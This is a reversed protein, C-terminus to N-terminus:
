EQVKLAEALSVKHINWVHIAAAVVYTAIGIIFVQMLLEPRYNLPFNGAYDALLQHMIENVIVIIVPISLLESALVTFTIPHMYLMRIEKETYGFVKMYSIYRASQEIITKTLLFILLVSVPIAAWMLMSLVSGMSRNIQDGASAMQGPTTEAVLYLDDLLLPKNSAYGNFYDVPKDFIECWMTRSMYVNMDTQSGAIVDPSLMYTDGTYRNTFCYQEGRTLNCKQALGLGVVIKGGSVDFKWYDSNLDIGYVTVEESKGSIARPVDLTTVAFKESKEIAQVSNHYMNVPHGAAVYPDSELLSARMLLTLYRSKSLEDEPHEYKHLVNLASAADVQASTVDIELPEKLTYVHQAPVMKSMQASYEEMLPITCLCMLLLVNSFVIGLFLILFQSTNRVLIRMRFRRLFKWYDPFVLKSGRSRHRIEQRLFQLPTAKLSIAIGIFSVIMLLLVPLVTMFVFIEVSFLPMFNIIDYARYYSQTMNKAFGSYCIINGIGAALLGTLTPLVMYHAILERKRYGSALLTGIVASESVITAKTLVVFVFSAVVLLITGAVAWSKQDSEFDKDAYSYANNDEKDILETLFVHNDNLLKAVDQEYTVRESLVMSTNDLVVSYRYVQAKSLQDYAEDTLQALTFTVGDYILDTNKKVLVQYDPMSMFGTITLTRGSLQITDGVSLNNNNCYTRSLAIENDQSPARGEVYTVMNFDTRNKFLRATTQKQAGPATFQVDSYFNEYLTCGSRHKQVKTIVDNPIKFQTTVYFDELNATARNQAIRKQISSAGTLFSSVMAITVTILFFLGLYKGLNHIFDRPLRKILPSM